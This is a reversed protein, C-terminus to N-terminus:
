DLQAKIGAWWEISECSGNANVNRVISYNEESQMMENDQVVWRRM